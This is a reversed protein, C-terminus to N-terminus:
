GTVINLVGPPLGSEAFVKALAYVALPDQPAPKVIVTNGMALAPAVKGMANALPNNYSTICTVVGVPQRIAVTGLLAGKAREHQATVMPSIPIENSELACTAYSRFRALSVGIQLQKATNLTAGTEDQAVVALEDGMKEFLDAARDLIGARTEPTSRSWTEFAEGAARAAGYGREVSAEPARGGVEETAPNLM